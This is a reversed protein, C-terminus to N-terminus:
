FDDPKEAPSQIDGWPIFMSLNNTFLISLLFYQFPPFIEIIQLEKATLNM